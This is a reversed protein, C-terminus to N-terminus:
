AGLACDAHGGPSSFKPPAPSNSRHAELNIRAPHQAGLWPALPKRCPASERHGSSTGMRRRDGLSLAVWGERGIGSYGM